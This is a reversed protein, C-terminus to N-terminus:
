TAPTPRAAQPLLGDCAPAAAQEWASAIMGGVLPLRALWAPPTAPLDSADALAQGLRRHPRRQRRHHAHGADAAGRVAAAAAADDGGGGAWRRGGLLAQVRLMLPWTAVVVMTAWIAPGLFPRLIWLSAVILAGIVLVAFTTRALDGRHKLPVRGREAYPEVSTAEMRYSAAGMYSDTQLTALTGTIWVADM